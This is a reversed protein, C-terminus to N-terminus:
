RATPRLSDARATLNSFPLNGTVVNIIGSAVLVTAGRAVSGPASLDTSV